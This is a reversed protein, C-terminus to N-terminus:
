FAMDVFFVRSSQVPHPMPHGSGPGGGGPGTGRPVGEKVPYRFLLWLIFISIISIFVALFLGAVGIYYLITGM